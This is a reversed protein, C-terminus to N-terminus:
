VRNLEKYTNELESYIKNYSMEDIKTFDLIDFLFVNDEEGNWIKNYTGEKYGHKQRFENLVNKGIYFKYLDEFRINLTKVMSTFTYLLKSIDHYFTVEILKEISVIKDEVSPNIVDLSDNFFKFIFDVIVDNSTVDTILKHKANRSSKFFKLVNALIFHWVDVTEILANDLDDKAHLSKWHKWNFSDILEGSEMRICREWNILRDEKTTGDIWCEGNTDNNLKEQLTIMELLMDKKNM